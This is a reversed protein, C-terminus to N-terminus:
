CLCLSRVLERGAQIVYSIGRSCSMRLPFTARIRNTGVTNVECTRPVRDQALQKRTGRGRSSHLVKKERGGGGGRLEEMQGNSATM